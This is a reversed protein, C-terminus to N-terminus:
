SLTQRADACAEIKYVYAEDMLLPGAASFACVKSAVASCRRVAALKM